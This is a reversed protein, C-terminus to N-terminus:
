SYHSCLHSVRSIPPRGGLSGHPRRRNYWRMFGSLARGRHESSPYVFRYAWENLLTKVLAEAKGNTWPSYRRTYRRAIALRECTERWHHSHYAKANDIMVREVVIGREAYL